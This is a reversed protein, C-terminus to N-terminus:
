MSYCVNTITLLFFSMKRNLAVFATYRREGQFGIRRAAIPIRVWENNVNTMMEVMRVFQKTIIMGDVGTVSDVSYHNIVHMQCYYTLAAILLTQGILYVRVNSERVILTSKVAM